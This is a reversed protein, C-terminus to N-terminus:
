HPATKTPYIIDEYSGQRIIQGAELEYIVDCAKLTTLRHAIMLITTNKELANIAGIVAVETKNDLASTAEDLIIVDAHKYLARAIGIRQRQGGSLRIGREGVCTNYGHQWSEIINAIQAQQAVQRVRDHDIQEAPVGFAINEAINADKLFISQPVHAIHSQWARFNQQNILTEDVLLSGHGPEFLAMVLDLLTSKGSGTTGMFGVMTGKKIELNIDKLVKPTQKSYRFSVNKLKISEKFSIPQISSELAYAPVAQEILSLVDNLSAESGRLSSWSAYFQQLVPLLRQAGIALAGLLPIAAVVGGERSTLTYALSAILVVGLAEIFFRPSAGIFQNNAQARRLPLDASQYIKCYVAQTGDILVERIGGFGEYLAKAARGFETSILQSNRKLQNRSFIMIFAYTAGFVLLAAVAVVPDILILATLIGLFLLLSSTAAILPLVTNLVVVNVKNSIGAIVESSNRSAHVAYPQYLTKEYIQSSLDAGISHGLRIQAWLLILRMSSATVSAGIFILTMPLLLQTPDNINLNAIVPQIIKSQFLKEPSILAGLFPLVAGIGIMEALSAGVMLVLLLTLQKKRRPALYVWLRKISSNSM